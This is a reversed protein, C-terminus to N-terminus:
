LVKHQQRDRNVKQGKNELYAFKLEDFSSLASRFAKRELSFGIFRRSLITIVVADFLQSFFVMM